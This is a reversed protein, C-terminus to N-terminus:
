CKFGPLRTGSVKYWHSSGHASNKQWGKLNEPLPLSAEQGLSCLTNLSSHPSALEGEELGHHGEAEPIPLHGKGPVPSGPTPTSASLDANLGKHVGIGAGLMETEMERM